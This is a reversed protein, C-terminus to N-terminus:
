LHLTRRSILFQNALGYLQLIIVMQNDLSFVIFSRVIEKKSTATATISGEIVPHSTISSAIAGKGVKGGVSAKGVSGTFVGVGM